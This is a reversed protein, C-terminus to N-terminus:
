ALRRREPKHDAKKAAPGRRASKRAGTVAGTAAPPLRGMEDQALNAIMALLVKRATALDQPSLGATSIRNTEEALPVLQEKLNGVQM